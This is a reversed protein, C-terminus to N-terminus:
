TPRGHGAPWQGRPDPQPGRRLHCQARLYHLGNEVMWHGRVLALRQEALVAYLRRV